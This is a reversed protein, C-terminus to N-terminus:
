PARRRHSDILPATHRAAVRVAMHSREGHLIRLTATRAPLAPNSSGSPAEATPSHGPPVPPGTATAAERDRYSPLLGYLGLKIWARALSSWPPIVVRLEAGRHRAQWRAELLVALGRVGCFRLGVTDVVVIGGPTILATLVAQM